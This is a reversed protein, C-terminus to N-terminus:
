NYYEGNKDMGAALGVPNPFEHGFVTRKLTQSKCRYLLKIIGRCIPSRRFFRLMKLTIKHAREPSYHFLFPRILQKYM